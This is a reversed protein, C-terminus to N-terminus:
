EKYYKDKISDRYANLGINGVAGLALVILPAVVGAAIGMSNALAASLSSVVFFKTVQKHENFERTVDSYKKDGLILLDFEAKFNKLYDKIGSGGFSATHEPGAVRMWIELAEEETHEALISNLLNQQFPELVEILENTQYQPINM